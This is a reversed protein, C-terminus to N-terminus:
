TSHISQMHAESVARATGIDTMVGFVLSYLDMCGLLMRFGQDIRMKVMEPGVAFGAAPIGREKVVKSVTEMAHVFDPEDGTMGLSLGLDLRLDGPGIMFASVQDHKVISALNEIGKRSEIQPIIAVHKNALSFVTEGEPTHDNVGPLFTFPPYSRHGIPPFRCAAVVAEMEEATEMHPIIVGGAGADLCWARVMYDFATKSPVRVVPIMKGASEHIIIQICEVLLKQSWAIHEADIWCWDAGTMALSKAVHRSPYTLAVGLIVKGSKLLGQLNSPQTLTPARWQAQSALDQTFRPAPVSM